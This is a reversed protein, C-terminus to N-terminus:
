EHGEDSYHIDADTCAKDIAASILWSLDASSAAALLSVEEYQKQRGIFNAVIGAIGRVCDRLGTIEAYPLSVSCVALTAGGSPIIGAVCLGTGIVSGCGMLTRGANVYVKARCVYSVASPPAAYAKVEMVRVDGLNCMEPKVRLWVESGACSTLVDVYYLKGNYYTSDVTEANSIGALLVIFAVVLFVTTSATQKHTM